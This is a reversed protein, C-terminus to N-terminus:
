PKVWASIIWLAGLVIFALGTGMRLITDITV